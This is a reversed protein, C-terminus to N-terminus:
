LTITGRFAAQDFITVILAWVAALCIRDDLSDLSVESFPKREDEAIKWKTLHM